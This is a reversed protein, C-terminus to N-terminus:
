FAMPFSETTAENEREEDFLRILAQEIIKVGFQGKAHRRV